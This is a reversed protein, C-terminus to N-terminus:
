RGEGGSALAIPILTDRTEAAMVDELYKVVEIWFADPPLHLAVDLAARPGACLYLLLGAASARNLSIADPTASRSAAQFSKVLLARTWVETTM